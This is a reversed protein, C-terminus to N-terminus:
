ELVGKPKPPKNSGFLDFGGSAQFATFGLGALADYTGARTTYKSVKRSLGSMETSFGLAGGLQSSTSSLGGALGSGEASGLGEASAIVQAKRIQAERIAQRQSRRAALAEQRERAKSAKKQAQISAVSAVVGVVAGIIAVAPM